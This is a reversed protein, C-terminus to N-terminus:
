RVVQLPLVKQIQMVRLPLVMQLVKQILMVQLVNLPLKVEETGPTAKQVIAVWLGHSEVM